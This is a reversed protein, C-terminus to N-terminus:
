APVTATAGVTKLHGELWDLAERRDQCGEKLREVKNGDTREVCHKLHQGRYQVSFRRRFEAAAAETLSVDQTGLPEFRLEHVKAWARDASLVLYEGFFAGDDSNLEIRDYPRFNKAVLAWFEPRLIDDRKTGQEVTVVWFNRAAEATKVRGPMVARPTAQTNEAM